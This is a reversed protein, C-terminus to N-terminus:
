LRDPVMGVYARFASQSGVGSHSWVDSEGGMDFLLHAKGQEKILLDTLIKREGEDSEVMLLHRFRAINEGCVFQELRKRHEVDSGTM